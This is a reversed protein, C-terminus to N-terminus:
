AYAGNNKSPTLELSELTKVCNFGTILGGEVNKDPIGKAIGDLHEWKKIQDPTVVEESDVPLSDRAFCNPLDILNRNNENGIKTKVKEEGTSTKVTISAPLGSIELDNILGEKLPHGRM